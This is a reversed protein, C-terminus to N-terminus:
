QVILLQAYANFNAGCNVPMRAFPVIFLTLKQKILLHLILYYTQYAAKNELVDDM